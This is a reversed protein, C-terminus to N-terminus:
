NVSFNKFFPSKESAIILKLNFFSMITSNIKLLFLRIPFTSFIEIKPLLKLNLESSKESLFNIYQNKLEDCLSM